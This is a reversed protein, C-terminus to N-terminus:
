RPPNIPIYLGDLAGLCHALGKQAQFEIAIRKLKDLLPWDLKYSLKRNVTNIFDTLIEYVTLREIGFLHFVLNKTSGSMLKLLAVAIRKEVEIPERWNTSKKQLCDRLEDCLNM